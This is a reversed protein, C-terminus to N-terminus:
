GANRRELIAIRKRLKEALRRVNELTQLSERNHQQELRSNVENGAITSQSKVASGRICILVLAVCYLGFM